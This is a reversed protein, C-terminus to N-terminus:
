KEDAAKQRLRIENRRRIELKKREHEANTESFDHEGSGDWKAVFYLDKTDLPNAAANLAGKGPSCIPGPPLGTYRRTNYPSPTNLESVRLPGGFKKLAYRVTPDAGLPYGKRLRNHFVGSIRPQESLLTAEREIISALIVFQHHSYKDILDQRISITSWIHRHREVMRKIIEATTIKEPFRYTDPFLYGELTNVKLSCQSIFSSDRCLSIFESTDIPITKSIHLATQEITLGEPIMLTIEIPRAYLLKSATKIVGDGKQVIVIGAKIRKETGKYRMWLILMGTSRIVGRAKLTDAVAHLQMKPLITLEVPTHDNGFPLLFWLATGLLVAATTIVIFVGAAIWKKKQMMRIFKLIFYITYGTILLIFIIGNLYLRLFYRFLIIIKKKMKRNKQEKGAFLSFKM